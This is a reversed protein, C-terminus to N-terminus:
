IKKRIMNECIDFGIVDSEELELVWCIEREGGRDKECEREDEGGDSERVGIIKSYM